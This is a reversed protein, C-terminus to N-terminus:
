HMSHSCHEHLDLDYMKYTCSCIVHVMNLVYIFHEKSDKPQKDYWTRTTPHPAVHGVWPIFMHGVCSRRTTWACVKVEGTNYWM